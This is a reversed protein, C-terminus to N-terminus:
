HMHVSDGGLPRHYNCQYKDAGLGRHCLEMTRQERIQYPTENSQFNRRNSHYHQPNQWAIQFRGLVM